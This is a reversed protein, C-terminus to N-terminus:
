SVKCSLEMTSTPSPELQAKHNRGVFEKTMLIKSLLSCTLYRQPMLAKTMLNVRCCLALTKLYYRFRLIGFPVARSFNCIIVM